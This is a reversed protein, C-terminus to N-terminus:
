WPSTDSLIERIMDAEGDAALGLSQQMEWHSDLSKQLNWRMFHVRALSAELTLNQVSTNVQICNKRTLWFEDIELLPLLEGSPGFRIIKNLHQPTQESSLKDPLVVLRIRLTPKWYLITGGEDDVVQQRQENEDENENLLARKAKRKIKPLYRTLSTTTTTCIRSPGDCGIWEKDRLGLVVHAYVTENKWAANVIADNTRFEFQRQRELGKDNNWLDDETWLRTAEENLIADNSLYVALALAENGSWVQSTGAKIRANVNGGSTTTEPQQLVKRILINMAFVMIMTRGLSNMFGEQQGEEQQAM